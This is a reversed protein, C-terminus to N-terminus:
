KGSRRGYPVMHIRLNRVVVTSYPLPMSLAAYGIEIRVVLLSVTFIGVWVALDETAGDANACFSV